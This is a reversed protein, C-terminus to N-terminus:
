SRTPLAFSPRAIGAKEHCRSQPQAQPPLARVRARRWLGGRTPNEFDASSWIGRAKMWDYARNFLTV